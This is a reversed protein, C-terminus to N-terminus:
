LLNLIFMFFGRSNLKSLIGSYTSPCSLQEGEVWREFSCKKPLEIMLHDKERPVAVEVLAKVVNKLQTVSVFVQRQKILVAVVVIVTSTFIKEPVFLINKIIMVSAEMIMVLVL